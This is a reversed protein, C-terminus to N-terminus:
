NMVLNEIEPMFRLVAEAAKKEKEKQAARNNRDAYYAYKSAEFFYKKLAYDDEASLWLDGDGLFDVLRELYDLYSSEDEYEQENDDVV